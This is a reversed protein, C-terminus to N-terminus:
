KEWTLAPQSTHGRSSPQCPQSTWLVIQMYSQLQLDYLSLQRLISFENWNLGVLRKLHLFCQKWFWYLLYVTATDQFIGCIIRITLETIFCRWWEFQHWVMNKTWWSLLFSITMCQVLLLTYVPGWEHLCHVCCFSSSYLNPHPATRTYHPCIFFINAKLPSNTHQPQIIDCSCSSIKYQKRINSSTVQM